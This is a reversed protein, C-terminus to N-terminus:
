DSPTVDPTEPPPPPVVEAPDSLEETSLQLRFNGPTDSIVEVLYLGAELPVREVLNDGQALNEGYTFYNNGNLINVQTNAVQDPTVSVWVEM